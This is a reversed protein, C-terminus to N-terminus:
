VMNGCYCANSHSYQTVTQIDHSWHGNEQHKIMGHYLRKENRTVAEIRKHAERRKYGSRTEERIAYERRNYGSRKAERIVAERRKYGGRKEQLWKEERIVTESRKYGGRKEQLRTVSLLLDLTNCPLSLSAM